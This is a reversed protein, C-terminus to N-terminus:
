ALELSFMLQPMNNGYFINSGIIWKNVASHSNTMENETTM